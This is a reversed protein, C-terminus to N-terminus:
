VQTRPEVIHLVGGPSGLCLLLKSLAEGSGLPYLGAWQEKECENKDAMEMDPLADLLMCEAVGDETSGQPYEMGIHSKGAKKGEELCKTFLRTGIHTSKRRNGQNKYCSIFPIVEENLPVKYVALRNAAGLPIGIRLM